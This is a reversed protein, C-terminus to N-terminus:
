AVILRINSVLCPHCQSEPNIQTPKGRVGALQALHISNECSLLLSFKMADDLLHLHKVIVKTCTQPRSRKLEKQCLQSDVALFCYLM